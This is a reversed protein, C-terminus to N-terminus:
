LGPKHFVRDLTAVENGGHGEASEGQRGCRADQTSLPGHGGLNLDGEDTATAAAGAGQNLEDRGALDETNFGLDHSQGIREFITDLLDVLGVLQGRRLQKHAIVGVLLDHRRIAREHEHGRRGHETRHVEGGGDFGALMAEDFLWHRDVWHTGAGDDGGAFLGLGLAQGDDGPRLATM